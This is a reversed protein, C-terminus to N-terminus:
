AGAVIQEASTSSTGKWAMGTDPMKNRLYTAANVTDAANYGAVLLALKSSLTNTAYGKILFQGAGVGTAQTWDSGCYAGGVLKAAASNICSGGVVILNKAAVSSVESDMVLIDGLSGGGGGVTGASISSAIEGVYLKPYVQDDPYSITAIYSDTDSRDTTVIVGYYDMSKYLDDDTEMQIEDWTADAGWTFEVDSVGVSADSTGAGEMKVLIANYVKSTSDDQEEFIGIAPLTIDTSGVDQLYVQATHNTSNGEVRYTLQGVTLTGGGGTGNSFIVRTTSGFTFNYSVRTGGPHGPLGGTGNNNATVTVTTYGDGDPFLLASLNNSGDWDDLDLITPEYFFLKAGKSTEITPFIVAQNASSDSDYNLRIFRSTDTDSSKGEYTVTYSKGGVTLKGTGESSVSVTYDDGTFADRFVINDDTSSSSNTFTILELLYGEDENGIVVFETKNVQAMEIVNIVNGDSDAIKPPTVSVNYYWEVSKAEGGKHTVATVTAKDSGSGKIIIDERATSDTGINLAPFDVKFSGFVTDVFSGGEIIADTDSDLAAVQVVFSTVNTWSNGGTTIDVNTGELTDEDSGVKVESGDTLEVRNAGVTVTATLRNTATDEDALTVAVDIGQIKKSADENIEKADSAGTSDTVKITASTDSAGTLEITYAKDDVTVSQSSPDSGGISLSVEQSSKFLVLDTGTTGAGISFVQGFLTLKEGISDSHTLNVAKNFNVTANYVPNTTASTSLSIAITPDSDSEPHKGYVLRPNSGLTITQTYEAAVNGEFDGDLLVTPLESDTLISRVANISDNMYVKSSSTFLPYTEGATTDTTSTSTGTLYTQLNSMIKGAEVTDLYSVGTGTGYVVAVNAVGSQVFPVPYNAAAAVGATMGVMLASTALASIKKFNLRM